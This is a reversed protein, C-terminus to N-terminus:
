YVTDNSTMSSASGYAAHGSLWIIVGVGIIKV